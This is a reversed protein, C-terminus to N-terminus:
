HFLAVCYTFPVAIEGDWILTKSPEDFTVWVGDVGETEEGQAKM